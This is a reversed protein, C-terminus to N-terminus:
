KTSFYKKLKYNLYDKTLDYQPDKLDYWNTQGYKVFEKLLHYVLRIGKKSDLYKKHKKLSKFHDDYDVWDLVKGFFYMTVRKQLNHDNNVSQYERITPVFPPPLFVNKKETDSETDSIADLYSNLNLYNPINYLIM